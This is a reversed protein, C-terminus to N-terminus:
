VVLEKALFSFMFMWQIRLKINLFLFILCFPPMHRAQNKAERLSHIRGCEKEKNRKSMVTGEEMKPQMKEM